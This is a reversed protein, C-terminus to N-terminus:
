LEQKKQQKLIISFKPVSREAPIGIKSDTSESRSSVLPLVVFIKSVKFFCKFLTFVM